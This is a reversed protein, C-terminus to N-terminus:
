SPFGINMGRFIAATTVLFFFCPVPLLKYERATSMSIEESGKEPESWGVEGVGKGGLCSAREPGQFTSQLSHLSVPLALASCATGVSKTELHTRVAAAPWPLPSRTLVVPVSSLLNLGCPGPLGWGRQGPSPIQQWFRPARLGQQTPALIPPCLASRQEPRRSLPPFSLEPESPPQVQPSPPRSM